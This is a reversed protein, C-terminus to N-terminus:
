EGLWAFTLTGAIRLGTPQAFFEVGLEATGITTPELYILHLDASLNPVPPASPDEAGMFWIAESDPGTAPELHGDLLLRLVLWRRDRDLEMGDPTKDAFMGSCRQWRGSLLSVVESTSAPAYPSGQPDSCSSAVKEVDVYPVILLGRPLVVPARADTGGQADASTASRCGTALPTAALALVLWVRPAAPRM